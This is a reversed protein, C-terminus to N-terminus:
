TTYVLSVERDDMARELATTLNQINSLYVYYTATGDIICAYQRDNIRNMTMVRSTGDRLNVTISYTCDEDYAIDPALKGVM